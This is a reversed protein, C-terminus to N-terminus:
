QFSIINREFDELSEILKLRKSENFENIFNDKEVSLFYKFLRRCADDEFFKQLKYHSYRFLLENMIKVPSNLENLRQVSSQYIKSHSSAKSSDCESSSFVSEPMKMGNLLWKVYEVMSNNLNKESESKSKKNSILKLKMLASLISSVSINQGFSNYSGSLRRDEPYSDEELLDSFVKKM